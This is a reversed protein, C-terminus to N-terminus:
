ERYAFYTISDGSTSTSDGVETQDDLNHLHLTFEEGSGGTVDATAVHTLNDTEVVVRDVRGLDTQVTNGGASYSDVGCVDVEVLSGRDGVHKNTAM